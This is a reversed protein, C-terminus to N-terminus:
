RSRGQDTRLVRLIAPRQASATPAEIAGQRPGRVDLERLQRRRGIATTQDADRHLTSVVADTPSLEPESRTASHDEIDFAPPSTHIHNAIRGRTVGVYLQKADTREGLLLHAEDVTAGQARHITSAYDVTVMGDAVYDAPLAHRHGNDRNILYLEDRTGAVITWRDGNRVWDDNDPGYTLRRDNTRTVVPQGPYFSHGAIEIRAVPDLWRTALLRYILTTNIEAVVSNTPAM